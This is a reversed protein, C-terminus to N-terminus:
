LFIDKNSFIKIDSINSFFFISNLLIFSYDLSQLDIITDFFIMLFIYVIFAKFVNLLSTSGFYRTVVKYVGVFHFIILILFISIFLYLITENLIRFKNFFLNLIFFSTIFAIADFLYIIFYKIKNSFYFISKLYNLINKKKQM